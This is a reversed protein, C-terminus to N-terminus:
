KAMEELMLRRMVESSSKGKNKCHDDFASKTRPDIRLRLTQTKKM